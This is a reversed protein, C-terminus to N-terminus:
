EKILEFAEDFTIGKEIKEIDRLRNVRFFKKGIECEKTYIKIDIDYEERIWKSICISLQSNEIWVPEDDYFLKVEIEAYINSTLEIIMQKATIMEDLSPINIKPNFAKLYQIYSNDEKSHVSKIKLLEGNLNQRVFEMNDIERAFKETIELVEVLYEIKGHVIKTKCELVGKESKYMEFTFCAIETIEIKRGEKDRLIYKHFISNCYKVYWVEEDKTFGKPVNLVPYLVKFKDERSLYPLDHDAEVEQWQYPLDVFENRLMEKTNEDEKKAQEQIEKNKKAQEFIDM